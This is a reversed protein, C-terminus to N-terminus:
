SEDTLKELWQQEHSEDQHNGCEVHDVRHHEHNTVIAVRNDFENRTWGDVTACGRKIADMATKATIIM